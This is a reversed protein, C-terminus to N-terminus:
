NDSEYIVHGIMQTTASFDAQAMTTVTSSAVKTGVLAINVDNPSVYGGMWNWTTTMNAFYGIVAPIQMGGVNKTFFPLNKILVAGTITGLASLSLNFQALVLGGGSGASDPVKFWRGVQVTYFQGSQSTVGGFAPTWTGSSTTPVDTGAEFIIPLISPAIQVISSKQAYIAKIYPTIKNFNFYQNYPDIASFKLVIRDASYNGLLVLANGPQNPLYINKLLARNGLSRNFVETQLISGYQSQPPTHVVDGPTRGNAVIRIAGLHIVNEDGDGILNTQIFPSPRNEGKIGIKKGSVDGLDTFSYIDNQNFGFVYNLADAANMGTDVLLLQSIDPIDTSKWPAWKITKYLTPSELATAAYNGHFIYGKGDTGLLIVYILKSLSDHITSFRSINDANFFNLGVDFFNAIKWTIEPKQYSGNFFYLGARDLVLLADVTRSGASLVEAIGHPVTGVGDDFVSSGWSSPVDDNDTASYTKNIKWAYLVDRYEKANLIPSLKNDTGFTVQGDVQDVSEPDGANSINILDPTSSFGWVIMRNHYSSIGIGGPIQSYLNRLYSASNVLSNDNFDITLSTTTNDNITGGPVFYFDYGPDIGFSVPPGTPLVIVKTAVIHRAVVYGSASVPINTLDVKKGGPANIQSFNTNIISDGVFSTIFGTDTEFAVSLYHYGIDVNGATASNAAAFTSGIPGAGAAGRIQTFDGKYLYVVSTLNGASSLKFFTLYARGNFNVADFDNFSSLDVSLNIQEPVHTGYVPISWLRGNSDFYLLQQDTSSKVFLKARRHPWNWDIARIWPARAEVSSQNYQVNLCDTFHDKPCSENDGRAWLGLFEDIPVPTHDRM